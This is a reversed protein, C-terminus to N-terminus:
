YITGARRVQAVAIHSGVAESQDLYFHPTKIQILAAAASFHL